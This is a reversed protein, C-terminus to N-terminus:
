KTFKLSVEFFSLSDKPKGSKRCSFSVVSLPHLNRAKAQLAKSECCTYLLGIKDSWIWCYNEHVGCM